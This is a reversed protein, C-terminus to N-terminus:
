WEFFRSSRNANQQAEHARQAALQRELEKVAAANWAQFGNCDASTARRIIEHDRPAAPNDIDPLLYIAYIPGSKCLWPILVTGM